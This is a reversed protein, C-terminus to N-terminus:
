AKAYYPVVYETGGLNLVAYGTPLLPLGSAGGAAGVTSQTAVDLRVSGRVDLTETAVTSLTTGIILKSAHRLDGNDAIRTRETGALTTAGSATYFLIAQAANFAPAGGIAILNSSSTVSAGIVFVPEEAATYHRCLLGIFQDTADTDTARVLILAGSSPGTITLYGAADIRLREIGSTAIALADNAPAFLGTDWSVDAFALSPEAANGYELRLIDSM